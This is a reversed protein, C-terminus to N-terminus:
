RPGEKLIEEVAEDLLRQVTGGCSGTCYYDGCEFVVNGNWNIYDELSINAGCDVTKPEASM